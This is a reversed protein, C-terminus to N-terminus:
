KALEYDWLEASFTEREQMWRTKVFNKVEPAYWAEAFGGNVECDIRFAAFKGAHVEVDEYNVVRCTESYARADVDEPPTWRGTSSYQGSFALPFWVPNLTVAGTTKGTEKNRRRVAKLTREDFFETYKPTDVEYTSAGGDTNEGVVREYFRNDKSDFTHGRYRWVDGPKWVPLEAKAMMADNRGPVQPTREMAPGCAPLVGAAGITLAVLKQV